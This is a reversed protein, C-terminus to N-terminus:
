LIAALSRALFRGHSVKPLHSLALTFEQNNINWAISSDLYQETKYRLNVKTSNQSYYVCIPLGFQGNVIYKSPVAKQIWQWAWIGSPYLVCCCWGSTCAPNLKQGSDKAEKKIRTAPNSFTVCIFTGKVERGRGRDPATREGRM